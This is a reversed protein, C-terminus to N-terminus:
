QNDDDKINRTLPNEEKFIEKPQDQWCEWMAGLSCFMLEATGMLLRSLCGSEVVGLVNASALASLRWKLFFGRCDLGHLGGRAKPCHKNKCCPHSGWKSIAELRVFCHFISVPMFASPTDVDLRMHRSKGRARPLETRTKGRWWPRTTDGNNRPWRPIFSWNLATAHHLVKLCCDM